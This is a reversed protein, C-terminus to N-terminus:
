KGAGEGGSLRAIDQFIRRVDLCDVQRTGKHDHVYCASGKVEYGTPVRPPRPREQAAAPLVLVAALTGVLAAATICKIM